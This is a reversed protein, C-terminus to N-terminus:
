VATFIKANVERVNRCDEQENGHRSEPGAVVCRHERLKREEHDREREPNCVNETQDSQRLQQDRSPALVAALSADHARERRREDADADNDKGRERSTDAIRLLTTWTDPGLDFLGHLTIVLNSTHWGGMTLALLALLREINTLKSRHTILQFLMWLPLTAGISYGIVQLIELPDLPSM